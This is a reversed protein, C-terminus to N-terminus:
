SNNILNTHIKEIERSIKYIEKKHTFDSRFILQRYKLYNAWVRASQIKRGRKILEFCVASNIFGKLIKIENDDEFRKEFWVEELAEHAEYYKQKHLYTCFLKLNDKM